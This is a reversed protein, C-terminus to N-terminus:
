SVVDGWLQPQVQQTAQSDKHECVGEDNDGATEKIAYWVSMIKVKWGKKRARMVNHRSMAGMHWFGGREIRYWRPPIRQAFKVLVQRKKTTNALFDIWCEEPM